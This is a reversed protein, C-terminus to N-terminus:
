AVRAVRARVRSAPLRIEVTTGVDVESTLSLEGGHMKILARAIPLGLGIGAM